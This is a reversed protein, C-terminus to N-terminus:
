KLHNIYKKGLEKGIMVSANHQTLNNTEVRKIMGLMHKLQELDMTGSIAKFFIGAFNKYLKEYKHSLKDIVFEQYSKYFPRMRSDMYDDDTIKEYQDNILKNESNIFSFNDVMFKHIRDKDYGGKQHCKDLLEEISKLEDSSERLFFQKSDVMKKYKNWIEDLQKNWQIIKNDTIEDTKFLGEISEKNDSQPYSELQSRISSIFTEMNDYNDIEREMFVDKLESYIRKQHKTQYRKVDLQLLQVDKLVYSNDLFRPM